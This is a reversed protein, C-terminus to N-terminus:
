LNSWLKVIKTNTEPANLCYSVQLTRNDNPQQWSLNYAYPNLGEVAFATAISIILSSILLLIKKM